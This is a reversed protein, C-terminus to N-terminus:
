RYMPRTKTQKDFTMVETKFEQKIFDTMFLEKIKYNTSIKVDPFKYVFCRLCYGKYQKNSIQTEYCEKCRKDKVNIMNNKKHEFCYLGTESVFFIIKNNM